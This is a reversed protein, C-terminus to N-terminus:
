RFEPMFLVKATTPADTHGMAHAAFPILLGPHRAMYQKIRLTIDLDEASHTDWGGIRRIFQTRFAGFAGSINNIVNWEALGTKAGQLSIMYEMAQMRSVLSVKDNRVRLSGGVAPVNPDIFEKTIHSVM